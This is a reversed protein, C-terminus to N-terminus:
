APDCKTKAFIRGCDCFLDFFMLDKLFMIFEVFSRKPTSKSFIAFTSGNAVRLQKAASKTFATWFAVRKAAIIGRKIIVTRFCVFCRIDAIGTRGSTMATQILKVVPSDRGVAFVTGSKGLGACPDIHGFNVQSSEIGKHGRKDAAAMGRVHDQFIMRLDRDAFFSEVVIDRGADKRDFVQIKRFLNFILGSFSVGKDNIVATDKLAASVFVKKSKKILRRIGGDSLHIGNYPRGATFFDEKGQM